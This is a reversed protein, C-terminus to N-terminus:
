PHRVAPMSATAGFSAQALLKTMLNNPLKVGQTQAAQIAAKAQEPNLVANTLAQQIKPEAIGSYIWNTAKGVVTNALTNDVVAQGIKQGLGPAANVGNPTIVQRLINQSALRQATASGPGNGATAVAGARDVESAIANLKNMQDPSMVNELANGLNRGTAQKMLAGEDQMAGLLANRNIIPNGSLDSGKSFSKNALQAAIDMQNPLQSMDAYTTRATKYDPSLTETVGVLKDRATKLANVRVTQAATAPDKIMDDLALKMNHLGQISGVSSDMSTGANAANVRAQNMADQIAPAQMLKEIQNSDLLSKQAALQSPSVANANSFADGYLQEAVNRRNAVAADRAGNGGAMESLVNVRAANNSSARSALANNIQPDVSRLSDQLRALGTDGTQEALTPLAGTPTPKNTVNAISAPNDAFRLLTRGAIQEPGGSTFPEAIAKLGRWGAGLLNGAVAAGGGMAAGMGANKIASEGQATPQILGLVGGTAAAGLITSAGPVALAPLTAAVNGAINGAMGAGTKMLPANLRRTEDVTSQDVLGLRQGIGQVMDPIAKGYGALFKEPGSMGVTPAYTIADSMQQALVRGQYAASGGDAPMSQIYSALKQAGDTDGAAHANRLATYLDDTQAM